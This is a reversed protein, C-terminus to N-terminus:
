RQIGPNFGSPYKFCRREKNREWSTELFEKWFGGVVGWQDLTNPIGAWQGLRDSRYRGENEAKTMYHTERYVPWHRRVGMLSRQCHVTVSVTHVSNRGGNKEPSSMNYVELCRRQFVFLCVITHKQWKHISYQVILTMDPTSRRSM